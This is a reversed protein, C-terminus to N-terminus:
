KETYKISDFDLHSRIDRIINLVDLCGKSMSPTARDTYKLSNNGRRPGRYIMLVLQKLNVAPKFKGYTERKSNHINMNFNISYKMGHTWM